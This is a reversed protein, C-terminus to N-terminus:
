GKFRTLNRSLLGGFFRISRIFMGPRLNLFVGDPRFALVEDGEKLQGVKCNVIRTFLRLKGGLDILAHILPSEFGLPVGAIEETFRLVKGRTPLDVWELDESNCQPCKAPKDAESFPRIVEFETKCRPCVYEYIPM